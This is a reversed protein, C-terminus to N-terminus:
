SIPPPGEPPRQPQNPLPPTGYVERNLTTPPPNLWYSNPHENIYWRIPGWDPAFNLYGGHYIEIRNGGPEWVYLFFAETVAHRHPGWEIHIGADRMIDATRMVEERTDQWFAVHHLRGSGGMNDRVLGLDHSINSCALFSCVEIEPVPLYVQENYKFALVDQFLARTGPLDKALMNVHDIRRVAAGRGTYRQVRNKLTSRLEEPAVWREVEWFVQQNHGDPTRFRYTKGHGLDGDSWGIGFGSDSLAAAVQELEEPGDSRWAAHGLGSRPAETVKLSHHFDEGWGRLYVSQGERASVEMGLLDTFFWLTKEPEPTLLEVHALQSILHRAM